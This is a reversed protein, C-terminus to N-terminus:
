IYIIYTLNHLYSADNSRKKWKSGHASNSDKSLNKKKKKKM